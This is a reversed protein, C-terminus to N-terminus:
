PLSPVLSYAPRIRRSASSSPFLPANVAIPSPVYSPVVALLVIRITSPV